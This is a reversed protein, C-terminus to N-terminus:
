AEAGETTIVLEAQDYPAPQHILTPTGAKRGRNMVMLALHVLFVLNAATIFLWILVRGILYGRSFITASELSTDWEDIAAGHSFGAALLLICLAICAYASWWFHFRIRAGSIWECGTVRPVIFYIAGFMTMTFFMYIGTMAVADQAYSFGTFRALTMSSM